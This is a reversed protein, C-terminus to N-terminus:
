PVPRQDWDKSIPLTFLRCINATHTQILTDTPNEQTADGEGHKRNYLYGVTHLSWIVTNCQTM